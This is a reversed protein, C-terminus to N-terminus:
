SSAPTPTARSSPAITSASRSSDRQDAGAAARRRHGAQDSDMRRCHRRIRNAGSQHRRLTRRQAQIELDRDQASQLSSGRRHRADPVAKRPRPRPRRIGLVLRRDHLDHRRGHERLLLRWAGRLQADRVAARLPRDAGADPRPRHVARVAESRDRPDQAAANRAARVGRGLQDRRLRRCGTRAGPRRVLPKTLRAPSYQKM